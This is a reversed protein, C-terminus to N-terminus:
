APCIAQRKRTRVLISSVTPRSIGLLRSLRSPGYGTEQHRQWVMDWDHKRKSGKKQNEPHVVFGYNDALWHGQCVKNCFFHQYGAKSTLWVIQRAPRKRLQGCWSCSVDVLRTEAWCSHCLGDKSIHKVEGCRICKPGTPLGLKMKVRTEDEGFIAALLKAVGCDTIPM